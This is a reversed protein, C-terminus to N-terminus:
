PYDPCGDVFEHFNNIAIEEYYEEKNKLRLTALAMGLAYIHSLELGAGVRFCFRPLSQRGTKLFIRVDWNPLPVMFSPQPRELGPAKQGGCIQGQVKSAKFRRQFRAIFPACRDFSQFPGIGLV